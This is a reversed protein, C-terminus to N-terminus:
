YLLDLSTHNSFYGSPSCNLRLHVSFTIICNLHHNLHLSHNLSSNLHLSRSPHCSIYLCFYLNIYHTIIIKLTTRLNVEIVEETWAAKTAILHRRMNAVTTFYNGCNANCQCKFQLRGDYEVAVVTYSQGELELNKKGCTRKHMNRSNALPFSSNCSTCKFTSTSMINQFSTAINQISFIHFHTQYQYIRSLSM